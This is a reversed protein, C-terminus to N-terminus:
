AKETIERTLFDYVSGAIHWALIPPVANGIQRETERLKADFIFSDPFSQFRAAERMSIRRNLRYHFQINGHCEARMTQAPRNPKLIRSGQEPSKNARSWVHNSVGHEPVEELDRVADEATLWNTANCIEKPPDFDFQHNKTGIIFIRERAQPVGYLAANYLKFSVKYGLSKFDTIVQDLSEKNSKHLLGKVNEAVFIRPQCKDIAFLMARYLGSRAGNVGAQKGNISIDQCPFGGIVVDTSPPLTDVLDWVNGCKIEHKLNLKYSRCAAQNLDNAWIIEFPRNKYRKNFISFGGKFGLDMGGCGSFMSVVKFKGTPSSKQISQREQRAPPSKKCHNGGNKSSRSYGM